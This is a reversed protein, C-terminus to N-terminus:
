LVSKERIKVFGHCHHELGRHSIVRKVDDPNMNLNVFACQMVYENMDSIGIDEGGSLAYGKFFFFVDKSHPSSYLVQFLETGSAKKVMRKMPNPILFFRSCIFKDTDPDLDWTAVIAYEQCNMQVRVMQRQSPSQKIDAYHLPEVGAIM